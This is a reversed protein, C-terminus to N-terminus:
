NITATTDRRGLTADQGTKEPAREFLHGSHRSHKAHEYDAGMLVNAYVKSDRDDEMFHFM